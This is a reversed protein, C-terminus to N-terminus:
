LFSLVENIPDSTARYNIDKSIRSLSPIFELDGILGLGACAIARTPDPKQANKLLDVLPKIARADGIKALAIVVQGQVNQTDAEELEKLLIQVADSQGLLGLGIACQLRLEESSREKLAERLAKLVDASAARMMGLSVACYGRLESDAQRDALIEVLPKKFSDDRMMGLAVAFAGQARKDMKTDTLGAHLIEMAQVRFNAYAEITPRDGIARCVLGVALAGYPRENYRGDKAVKLLEEAVKVGKANIVDTRDQKVDAVLLYALSMLGFNRTSGEKVAEMTRWLEVALNAREAGDVRQGLKGLSIAASRKVNIGTGKVKMATALPVIEKASGVRGLALAAYSSVLDSTSEKGLKSKLACEKLAEIMEPKITDPAQMSLALLAAVYYDDGPLKEGLREFIRQSTTSELATDSPAYFLGGKDGTSSVGRTTPQDGLLGLALMAFARSRTNFEKNDFCEFLFDRVRDLEKADFQRAADTRRLMGLAFVASEHVLQSIERPRKGDADVIAKRILAIDTPDDTVKALAIYSASETDPYKSNNPDMAWRLAPILSEKVEKETARTADSKAGAADGLTGLGSGQSVRLRYIADKIQLIEDSNYNWWFIWQDYSTQPKNGRPKGPDDGTTQPPPPAGPPTNPTTPAPPQGPTDPPTTPPTGTPPPPPPPPTPDTPERLGPPVSGGPTRYQGGHAFATPAVIMAIASGAVIGYLLRKM